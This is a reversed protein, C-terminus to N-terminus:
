AVGRIMEVAVSVFFNLFRAAKLGGDDNVSVDLETGCSLQLKLVPMRAKAVLRGGTVGLKRQGSGWRCARELRRLCQVVLQKSAYDFGGTGPEPVALGAPNTKLLHIDAYFLSSYSLPLSSQLLSSPLHRFV